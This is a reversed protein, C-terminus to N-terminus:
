CEKSGGSKSGQGIQACASSRRGSQGCTGTAQTNGHSPISCVSGSLGRERERWSTDSAPWSTPPANVGPMQCRLFEVFATLLDPPFHNKYARGVRLDDFQEPMELPRSGFYYFTMSILVNRGSLDRTKLEHNEDLCNSHASQLQQFGGNPLPRYINDGRTFVVEEKTYDPVKLLFRSDEFYQGISLIEDVRMAYIIRNGAAKPSLGAIWDGVKATRRIAPKCCALTCYGWFPNPAFGGDHRVVYSYLKVTQGDSRSSAM